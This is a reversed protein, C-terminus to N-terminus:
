QPFYSDNPPVKGPIFWNKLIVMPSLMLLLRISLIPGYGEVTQTVLLFAHVTSVPLATGPIILVTFAPQVLNNPTPREVFPLIKMRWLTSVQKASPGLTRVAFPPPELAM